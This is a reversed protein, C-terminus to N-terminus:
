KPEELEHEQSDVGRLRILRDIEAAILAGAVTLNHIRGKPKWFQKEWPWFAAKFNLFTTGMNFSFIAYVIAAKTLEFRDHQDDHESSWGEKEIQRQRETAILEAGTM